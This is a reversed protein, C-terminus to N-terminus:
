WRVVGIWYGEFCIWGFGLSRQVSTCPASHDSDTLHIISLFCPEYIIYHRSAQVPASLLCCVTNDPKTSKRNMLRPNQMRKRSVRERDRKRGRNKKRPSLSILPCCVYKEIGIFRAQSPSARHVRVNQKWMLELLFVLLFCALWIRDKRWQCLISSVVFYCMKLPINYM